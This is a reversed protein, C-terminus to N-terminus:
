CAKARQRLRSLKVAPWGVGLARLPVLDGLVAAASAQERSRAGLTRLVTQTYTKVTNVALGLREATVTADEGGVLGALVAIHQASLPNGIPNMLHVEQVLGWGAGLATAHFRSKAGIKPLLTLAATGVRAREIGTARSIAGYLAGRALQQLLLVDAESLDPKVPRSTPM